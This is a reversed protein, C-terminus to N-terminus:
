VGGIWMERRQAIGGDMDGVEAIIANSQNKGWRSHDLPQLPLDRVKRQATQLSRGMKQLYRDGSKPKPSEPPKARANVVNGSKVVTMLVEIKDKLEAISNEDM